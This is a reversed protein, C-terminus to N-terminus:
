TFPVHTSRKKKYCTTSIDTYIIKCFHMCSHLCINECPLSLSFSLLALFFTTITVRSFTVRSFNLFIFMQIPIHHSILSCRLYFVQVIFVQCMVFWPSLCYTLSPSSINYTFPVSLLTYSLSLSLFFVPSPNSIPSLSPLFSLFSNIFLSLLSLCLSYYHFMYVM